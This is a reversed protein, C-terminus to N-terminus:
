EAYTACVNYHGHWTQNCAPRASAQSAFAVAIAFAVGALIAKM